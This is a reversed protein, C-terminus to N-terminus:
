WHRGWSPGTRGRVADNLAATHGDLSVQVQLGADRAQRAFDDTVLTGNTSVLTEFGQRQALHFQTSREDPEGLRRVVEQRTMGPRVSGFARKFEPDWLLGLAALLHSGLVLLLAAFAAASLSLLAWFWPRRLIRRDEDM